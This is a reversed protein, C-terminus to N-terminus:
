QLYQNLMQEQELRQQLEATDAAMPPGLAVQRGYAAMLRTQAAHDDAASSKILAALQPQRDLLVDSVEMRRDRAQASANNATNLQREFMPAFQAQMQMMREYKDVDQQEADAKEKQQLMMTPLQNTLGTLYNKLGDKDGQDIMLKTSADYQMMIDETAGPDLGYMSAISNITDRTDGAIETMQEPTTRDEGFLTKYGGFLAAGGLAAWGVPGTGLGLAIAGGAGLGAGLVAGSAGRDFANNEGGIDMGDILGSLAYGTGAVGAGKLATAKTAGAFMKSLGGGSMMGKSAVQTAATSAASSAATSSGAAQAARTGLSGAAGTAGRRAGQAAIDDAASGLAKSGRGLAGGPTKSHTINGINTTTRAPGAGIAAPGGPAATPPVGGPPLAQQGGAMVRPIAPTGPTGGPGIARQAPNMGPPLTAGVSQPNMAPTGLPALKARGAAINNGARAQMQAARRAEKNSSIKRDLGALFTDSRGPKDALFADVPDIAM